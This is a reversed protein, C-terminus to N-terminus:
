RGAALQELHKVVLAWPYMPKGAVTTCPFRQREISREGVSFFQAMEAKTLVDFPGYRPRKTPGSPELEGDYDLELGGPPPLPVTAAAPTASTPSGAGRHLTLHSPPTM